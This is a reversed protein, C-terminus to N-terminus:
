RVKEETKNIDNDHNRVTPEKVEDVAYGLKKDHDHPVEEYGASIQM